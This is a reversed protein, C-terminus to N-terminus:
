VPLSTFSDKDALSMIKDTTDSFFEFFSNSAIFWTSSYLIWIYFSTISGYLLLSYGLFSMLFVIGNVIADSIM